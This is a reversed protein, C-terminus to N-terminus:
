CMPFIPLGFINGHYGGLEIAETSQCLSWDAVQNSVYIDPRSSYRSREKPVISEVFSQFQATALLFRADTHIAQRLEQLAQDQAQVLATEQQQLLALETDLRQRLHTIQPEFQATHNTTLQQFRDVLPASSNM